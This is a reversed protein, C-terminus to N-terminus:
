LFNILYSVILMIAIWHLNLILPRRILEKANVYNIFHLVYSASLFVLGLSLFFTKM